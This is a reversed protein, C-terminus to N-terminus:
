AVACNSRYTDRKDSWSVTLRSVVSLAFPAPVMQLCWIRLLWSYATSIVSVTSRSKQTWIGLTHKVTIKHIYFWIYIAIGRSIFNWTVSWDMALNWPFYSFVNGIWVWPLLLYVPIYLKIPLNWDCKMNSLIQSDRTNEQRLIYGSVHDNNCM